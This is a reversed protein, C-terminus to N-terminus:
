SILALMDSFIDLRLAMFFNSSCYPSRLPLFFLFSKPKPAAGGCFSFAALTLTYRLRVLMMDSQIPRYHLFLSSVYAFMQYEDHLFSGSKESTRKMVQQALDFRNGGFCSSEVGSVAELVIPVLTHRV